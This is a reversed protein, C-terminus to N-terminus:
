KSIFVNNAYTMGSNRLEILGDVSNNLESINGEEDLEGDDVDSLDDNIDDKNVPDTVYGTYHEVEEPNINVMVTTALLATPIGNEPLSELITRDLKIDKYLINHNMLWNLATAVRDKRVRLVKKLQEEPPRGHGVFVVKLHDYLRYMPLPLVATLSTPEQTFTIVHGKLKHHTHRRDALQILNICIYGASILLQEPITLGQLYRPTTGIWVNALSFMPTNGADLLRKCDSCVRLDFSNENKGNVNNKVLGNRNLLIKCSGKDIYPHGYSFDIEFFPNEFHKNTELLPLHLERVSIITLHEYLYLGSCVACPLERLSNCSVNERFEALAGNAVAKDIPQPWDAYREESSCFENDMELVRLPIHADEAQTDREILIKQRKTERRKRQQEREHRHYSADVRRVAKQQKRKSKYNDSIVSDNKIYVFSTENM